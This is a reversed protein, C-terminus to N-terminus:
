TGGKPGQPGDYTPISATALRWRTDKSAVSVVPPDLRPSRKGLFIAKWSRTLPRQHATVRERHLPSTSLIRCCTTSGPLRHSIGRTLYHRRRLHALHEDTQEQQLFYLQVFLYLRVYDFTRGCNTQEAIVKRTLDAHLRLVDLSDKSADELTVGGRVRKGWYFFGEFIWSLQSATCHAPVVTTKYTDRFLDVNTKNRAEWEVEEKVEKYSLCRCLHRDEIPGAIKPPISALIEVIRAEEGQARRGSREWWRWKLPYHHVTEGKGDWKPRLNARQLDGLSTPDLHPTAQHGYAGPGTTAWFQSFTTPNDVPSPAPADPVEAFAM